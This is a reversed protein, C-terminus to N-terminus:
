IVWQCHRCAKLTQVRQESDRWGGLKPEEVVDSQVAEVASEAHEFNKPSAGALEPYIFPVLESV